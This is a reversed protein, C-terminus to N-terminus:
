NAAAAQPPVCIVETVNLSYTEGFNNLQKLADVTTGCKIAISSLTDGSRVIYTTSTPCYASNAVAISITNGVVLDAGSVGFRAMLEITTNYRNALNYLTDGSAVTHSTFAYMEVSPTPLVPTNTPAVPLPTPTLETGPLQTEGGGMAAQDTFELENAPDANIYILQGGIDVTTQGTPVPARNLFFTIAIASAVALLTAVIIILIIVRRDPQNTNSTATGSSM